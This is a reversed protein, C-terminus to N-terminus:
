TEISRMFHTKVQGLCNDRVSNCACFREEVEDITLEEFGFCIAVPELLPKLPYLLFSALACAIAEYRAVGSRPTRPITDGTM